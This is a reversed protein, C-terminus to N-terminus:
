HIRIYCKCKQLDWSDFRLRQIEYALERRNLRCCSFVLFLSVFCPIIPNNRKFNGIDWYSVSREELTSTHKLEIILQCPKLLIGFAVTKTVAIRHGWSMEFCCHKKEKTLLKSHGCNGFSQSKLDKSTGFNEWLKEGRGNRQTRNAPSPGHPRPKGLRSVAANPLRSPGRTPRGAAWRPWPLRPHSPCMRGHGRVFSKPLSFGEQPLTIKVHRLPHFTSEIWPELKLHNKQQFSEALVNAYGM